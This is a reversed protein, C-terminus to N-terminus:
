EMSEAPMFDDIRHASEFTDLDPFVSVDFQSDDSGPRALAAFIPRESVAAFVADVPGASRMRSPEGSEGPLQRSGLPLDATGTLGFFLDRGTVEYSLNSVRGVEAAAHLGCAGTTDSDAVNLDATTLSRNVTGANLTAYMVSTSDTSHGLGLAHGLEHEVVTEFDYQASGIQTADSGAYFNWGNIITIQGADTTCGLVGDAYGGVASTTDMNLTVDALTPDTIEVVAVGYPATVADAATVADQVRALEDATLDGNTNDVYLDIDGGLLAGVATSTGGAATTTLGSASGTKSLTVTKTYTTGDALVLTVTYTGAALGKTQWNAIFQNATSDYRLATSGANTLVNTGSSNLVQLSVVASLSSISKNNYDTLQFKIPVTRNLAMALNSNLPALFGSFAYQVQQVLTATSTIYNSDGSYVAAMNHANVALGSTTWRATGSSLAVVALTSGTTRDMFTVNGTPVASGTSPASVTATLTVSQNLLSPNASSALAVNAVVSVTVGNAQITDGAALIVNTGTSQVVPSTGTVSVTNGGPSAPTGLDVTSGGSVAIAPDNFNTSGQVNSDRLTLTGGTVSITPADGTETFTVGEVVVNGSTVTLAPTDPDIITNTVVGNIILTIGTAPHLTAATYKGPNLNLVVTASGTLSNVASIAANETTPSINLAIATTPSHAVSTLLPQLDSVSNATIAPILGGSTSPDDFGFIDGLYAAKIATEVAAIAPSTFTTSAAAYQTASNSGYTLTVNGPQPTGSGSTEVVQVKYVIRGTSPDITPVLGTATSGIATTPLSGNDSAGGSTNGYSADATNGAVLTGANYFAGGSSKATNGSSNSTFYGSNALTWNGSLTSGSVTLQQGSNYIGGGYATALNNQNLSGSSAGSSASNGYLTCGTITVQPGSNYIGGGFANATSALNQSANASVSNNALTSGSLTLGNLNYIGGGYAVVNGNNNTFSASNGALICNTMTTSGGNWIGGGSVNSGTAQNETLSSTNLTLKGTNYIGGGGFTTSNNAFNSSAVTLTGLNNVGGGGSTSSNGSLLDSNLTLTGQNWIGGGGHGTSDNGATIILNDFEAKLGSDVQFVRSAHNGSITVPSSLSSGDITIKGSGSLELQGSTLTITQGALSPAFNITDSLGFGAINDAQTVAARLSGAGSDANNNVTLPNVITYNPATALYVSVNGNSNTTVKDPKGDGNLDGVAVLSYTNSGTGLTSIGLYQPVSQFTGDGKGLLVFDQRGGGYAYSYMTMRIDPIGDGNVDAIALGYLRGGQFYTQPALSSTPSVNGQNFANGALDRINGNPLVNVGLTGNGTIGSVTVTYVTSSIPTVQTLAATVSGTVVPQIDTADVGTVPESFTVTFNVSGPNTITNTSTPLNISQVFPPTHDITYVQGTFNGNTSNLLVSLNNNGDINVIDPKGDGNIDAVTSLTGAGPAFWKPNQFTGDGNGFLVGVVGNIDDDSVVIDPRGDGNMDAVAVSPLRDNTTYLKQAQFTGDGNGQLVSISGGANVTVIDPKGDGNVDAVAASYAAYGGWQSVFTGATLGQPNQFTGDGNGLLVNVDSTAANTSTTNTSTTVIDPRGDGNLDAVALSRAYVGPGMDITKPNQFTGDGNGPLVIVRGHGLVSGSRFGYSAVVIDPKGDGNVDAVVASSIAYDGPALPAIGQVHSSFVTHPAQFTGDGNGLLVGVSQRYRVLLDPKGDGNLDAVTVSYPRLVTPITQDAGFTGDGNGLRLEVINGTQTATAILLDPKGDGNVDALVPRGFPNADTIFSQTNQFSLTGALKHGALDQISGNDVLNLGLTGTGTIGSVTVTYVSGSVPTVQSVVAAVGGTEALQFDTTNVGTVAESFTVTYAVSSANTLPSAPNALNISQVLPNVSFLDRNELLELFL